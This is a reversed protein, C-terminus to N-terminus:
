LGMGSASPVRTTRWHCVLFHPLLGSVRCRPFQALRVQHVLGPALTATCNPGLPHISPLPAGSSSVPLTRLWGEGSMSM